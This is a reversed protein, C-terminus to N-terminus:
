LSFDTKDSMMAHYASSKKIAIEQASDVEAINKHEEAAQDPVAKENSAETDVNDDSKSVQQGETVDEAEEAAVELQQPSSQQQVVAAKKQEAINGFVTDAVPM